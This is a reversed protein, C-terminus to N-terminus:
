APNRKAQPALTVLPHLGDLRQAIARQVPLLVVDCAAGGYFADRGFGQGLQVAAGHCAGPQLLGQLGSTAGEDFGIAGLHVPQCAIDGALSRHDLQRQVGAPHHGVPACGLLCLGGNALQFQFELGPGHRAQCREGRLPGRPM